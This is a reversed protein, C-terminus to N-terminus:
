DDPEVYVLHVFSFHIVDERQCNFMAVDGYTTVYLTEVTSHLLRLDGNDFSIFLEAAFGGKGEELSLSCTVPIQATERKPQRTRRM